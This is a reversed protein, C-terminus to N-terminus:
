LTAVYRRRAAASRPLALRSRPEVTTGAYAPWASVVSIERLTVARLERTRRDRSWDEVDVTFGFSMGGLDRREALALVDNGVSTAPVDLEFGLGHADESLRLTGSATRALLRSPDHDVLALIDGKARLSAAFAGQRITEVFGSIEAPQAFTAAYGALKRGAARIEVAQARREIM